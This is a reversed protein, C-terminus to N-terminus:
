NRLKIEPISITAVFRDGSPAASLSARQGFVAALRHRVNDLGIGSGDTGRLLLATNEVFSNAVSIRLTEGEIRASIEITVPARSRAVGHKVANEVLPHVLFSPVLAEGAGPSCDIAVDLRDGFRISEIDLYEETLALEEELPILEAPDAGLSSRLFGSLKTTMSEADANRGTVILASISNLSNFLFHPNLQYRLAALKAQQAAMNADAIQREQQIAAHRVYNLHFLVMNVGFVLIYNLTSSYARSFDAPLSQWAAMVNDAIWGQFLLDITTNTAAAALVALVRVPVGILPNVGIAARSALFMLMALGMSYLITASDLATGIWPEGPHRRIIVPLFVLLVFSWLLVTSRLAESWRAHSKLSPLHAIGGPLRTRDQRLGPRTDRAIM